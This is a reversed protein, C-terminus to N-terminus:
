SHVVSVDSDIFKFFHLLNLLNTWFIILKKWGFIYMGLFPLCPLDIENTKDRLNKRREEISTFEKLGEWVEYDKSNDKKLRQWTEQLRYIPTSQLAAVIAVLSHYNKLKNALLFSGVRIFYVIIDKRKKLHKKYDHKLIETQVFLVTHNFRQTLSVINPSIKFKNKTNWSVNSDLEEPTINKFHRFDLLTLQNAIEEPKFDVVNQPNKPKTIELDSISLQDISRHSRTSLSSYSNSNTLNSAPSLMSNNPTIKYLATM